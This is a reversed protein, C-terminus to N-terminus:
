STTVHFILPTSTEKKQWPRAYVMAINTQQPVAFAQPKVRFTWREFGSAGILASTSQHYNHKLPTILKADYEGLSWSYGTSPNSKLKLTFEPHSATVTINQQKETYVNDSDNNQKAYSLMSWTVLMGVFICQSIKKVDRDMKIEM